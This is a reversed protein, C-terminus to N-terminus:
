TKGKKGAESAGGTAFATIGQDVGKGIGAWMDATNKADNQAMNAIGAYQGSRGGALTTKNNFNQQVLGKNYQQQQNQTQTNTNALDQRNTVNRLAAQNASNVNQSQVNQANQTNFQNIYDKAKAIEAQQGFQQGQMQGGLAGAQSIAQLAAQQAQQAVQNNNRALMEAAAQSNSLQAALQAGSGGMGTRAFQDMIQANKSQAMASANRQAEALAAAEAPSMGMQGTESLRSLASMQAQVLRPDTQIGAMATPDTQLAQAQFANYDGANQYANLNLMQESIEPASLSTWQALADQTARRADVRDGKAQDQGILGGVVSGM